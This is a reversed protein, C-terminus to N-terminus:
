AKEHQEVGHGLEGHLRGVFLQKVEDVGGHEGDDREYKYPILFAGRTLAKANIETKRTPAIETAHKMEARTNLAPVTGMIATLIANSPRVKMTMRSVHLRMRKFGKTGTASNKRSVMACRNTLAQMM